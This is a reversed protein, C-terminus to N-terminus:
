EVVVRTRAACRREIWEGGLRYKQKPKGRGMRLYKGIDKNNMLNVCIRDLRELDKCIADREELKNVEDYM